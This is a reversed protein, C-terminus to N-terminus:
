SISCKFACIRAFCPSLAPAIAAALCDVSSAMLASPGPLENTFIFWSKIALWCRIIIEGTFQFEVSIVGDSDSTFHFFEYGGEIM